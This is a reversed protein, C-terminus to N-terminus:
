QRNADKLHIHGVIGRDLPGHIGGDGFGAADVDGDVVGAVDDGPQRFREGGSCACRRISVFKRPGTRTFRATSGCMRRWRLPTSMWMLLAAPRMMAGEM